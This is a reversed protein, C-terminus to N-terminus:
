DIANLLEHRVMPELADWSNARAWEGARIRAMGVLADDARAFADLRQAIARPEVDLLPVRRNLLQVYSREVCPLTLVPWESAQPEADPMLVAMGAAMAEQVPLSLGGYRRPMVLLEGEDYLRWYDAVPETVIEVDVGRNNRPVPIREGHSRLIVRQPENCLRVASLVLRTGNRDEAARAGAVHLWTFPRRERAGGHDFRDLAVPVPVVRTRPPMWDLRWSTPTWWVDPDPLAHTDHRYFEPMAHCVTRVGLQRAWTVIRWDYYTEASYLVDLGELWEMVAAKAAGPVARESTLQLVRTTDALANYWDLHVDLENPLVVLLTRDPKMARYFERTLTGLGRDDGRAILGVKM